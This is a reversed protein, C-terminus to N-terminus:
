KATDAPAAEVVPVTATTPVSAEVPAAAEVPVPPAAAAGTAPSRLVSRGILAIMVATHVLLPSFVALLSATIFSAAVVLALAAGVFTIVATVLRLPGTAGRWAFVTGVITCAASLATLVETVPDGLGISDPRHAYVVLVVLLEALSIATWLLLNTNSGSKADTPSAVM